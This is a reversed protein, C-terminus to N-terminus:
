DDPHRIEQKPNHFVTLGQFWTEVPVNQDAVRYEFDQTLIDGNEGPLLCTGMRLAQFDSELGMQIAMRVFKCATFSNSYIFVKGM